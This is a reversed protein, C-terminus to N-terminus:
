IILYASYIKSSGRYFKLIWLIVISHAANLAYTFEM